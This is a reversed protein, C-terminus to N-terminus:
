RKFYFIPIKLLMGDEFVIKFFWVEILVQEALLGDNSAVNASTRRVTGAPRDPSLVNVFLFVSTPDGTRVLM